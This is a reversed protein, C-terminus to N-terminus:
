CRAPARPVGRRDRRGDGAHAPPRRRRGPDARRHGRSHRDHGGGRAGDSRRRRRLHRGAGAARVARSLARGVDGVARGDDPRPVLSRLRRVARAASGQAHWFRRAFKLCAEVAEAGSNCFFARPLGSLDALRAALEAQLPHISCTRRTCCRRRRDRSRRAGAGPARPRAVAVGVGSILDLYREGDRTFLACGKGREFVVPARRYVQLVHQPTSRSPTSTTLMSLDPSRAISHNPSQDRVRSRAVYDRRRPRGVIACTGSAATSRTSAPARAQRGHRRARHGRGGDRDAGARRRAGSLRAPRRRVRRGDQRRHDAADRRDDTALHAALTDANVNLLDGGATVGISAIVPVYGLALLDTVLLRLRRRSRSASWASISPSAARRRRAAARADVARAVRRRRDPRGGQRRGRGLAAVFATNIRGALVGVVRRSRTRTPSGCATSSAAAGQRAGCTPTSRAAAATCSSWATRQRALTAIAGAAARMAAADELLEGGLKLLTTLEARAKRRLRVRRQLEARGARRGGQGPQRHVLGARAAADARNVRWGIDCFNTHAVHKIEPLDSGTLRVFPSDAYAAQAGRRRRSRSARSCRRTSRKSFAAISRCCTRCSRSRRASSRSSRRRMATSSCATPRSAATASASLADARDADQGRGVRGVERRHHDARDSWARRSCRSCRSSRRPRIAAPVRSWRRIARPRDRNQETLGYVVSPPPDPTQPYWRRRLEADRLRFAGSLDFVRKGRAVLAPAIEAAAHDPLALFVADTPSRGLADVDLGISPRMGCGSCRRCTGRRQARRGWRPPLGSARIAALLRLLEVGTYGTAGAVGVRVTHPM